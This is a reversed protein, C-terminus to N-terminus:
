FVMFHTLDTKNIHEDEIKYISFEMNFYLLSYHNFSNYLIYTYM